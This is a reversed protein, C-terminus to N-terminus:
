RPCTRLRSDIPPPGFFTVAMFSPMLFCLNWARACDLAPIVHKRSGTEAKAPIVYSNPGTETWRLFSMSEAAQKLRFFVHIWGGMDNWCLYTRLHSDIPPPGYFTVAM